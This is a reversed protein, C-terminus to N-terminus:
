ATEPPTSLSKLQHVALLRGNPKAKRASLIIDDYLALAMNYATIVLRSQPSNDKLKQLTAYADYHIQVGFENVTRIDDNLKRLGQPTFGETYSGTSLKKALGKAPTLMTSIREFAQVYETTDADDFHEVPGAQETLLLDTSSAVITDVGDKPGLSDLLKLCERIINTMEDFLVVFDDM